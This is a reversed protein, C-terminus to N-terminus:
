GEASCSEKEQLHLLMENRVELVKEWTKEANLYPLLLQTKKMTEQKRRIIRVPMDSAKQGTELKHDTTSFLLSIIGLISVNNSCILIV